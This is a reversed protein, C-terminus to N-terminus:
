FGEAARLLCLGAVCVGGFRCVAARCRMYSCSCLQLLPVAAKMETQGTLEGRDRTPSATELHGTASPLLIILSTSPPPPSIPGTAAASWQHNPQSTGRGKIGKPSRRLLVFGSSCWFFVLLFVLLVWFSFFLQDIM